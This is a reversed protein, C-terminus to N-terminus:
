FQLFKGTNLKCQHFHFFIGKCQTGLLLSSINPRGGGPSVAPKGSKVLEAFKQSCKWWKGVSESKGLVPLTGWDASRLGLVSVGMHEPDNVELVWCLIRMHSLRIRDALVGKM